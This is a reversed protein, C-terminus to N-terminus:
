LKKQWGGVRGAATRPNADRKFLAQALGETTAGGNWFLVIEQSGCKSRFPM